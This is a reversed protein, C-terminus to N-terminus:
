RAGKIYIAAVVTLGAFNSPVNVTVPALQRGGNAQIAASLEV